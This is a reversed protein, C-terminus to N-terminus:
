EKTGRRSQHDEKSGFSRMAPRDWRQNEAARDIAQREPEGRNWLENYLDAGSVGIVSSALENAANTFFKKKMKLAAMARNVHAEAAAKAEPSGYVALIAKMENAGSEGGEVWADIVHRWGMYKKLGGAYEEDDLAGINHGVHAWASALGPLLGYVMGASRRMTRSGLDFLGNNVGTRASKVIADTDATMLGGPNGAEITDRNLAQMEDHAVDSVLIGWFGYRTLRIRSQLNRAAYFMSRAQYSSKVGKFGSGGFGVGGGVRGGRKGEQVGGRIGALRDRPRSNPANQKPPDFFGKPEYPNRGATSGGRIPTRARTSTARARSSPRGVDDADLGGFEWQYGFKMSDKALQALRRFKSRPKTSELTKGWKQSDLVVKM